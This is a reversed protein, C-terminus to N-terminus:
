VKSQKEKNNKFHEVMEQMRSPIVVTTNCYGCCRGDNVPSANHGQSWSKKPSIMTKPINENCISCKM